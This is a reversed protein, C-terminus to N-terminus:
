FPCPPEEFWYGVAWRGDQMQTVTHTAGVKRNSDTNFYEACIRAIYEQTYAVRVHDHGKKFCAIFLKSTEMMAVDLETYTKIM